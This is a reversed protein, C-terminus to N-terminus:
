VKNGRYICSSNEARYRVLRAPIGAVIDEGLKVHCGLQIRKAQTVDISGELVLWPGFRLGKRLRSRRALLCVTSFPARAFVAARRILGKCRESLHKCTM